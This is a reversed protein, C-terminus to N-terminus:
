RVAQQYTRPPGVVVHDGVRVPEPGRSLRQDGLDPPRATRLRQGQRQSRHGPGFSEPQVVPRSDPQEVFGAPDCTPVTEAPRQRLQQHAAGGDAQFEPPDRRCLAIQAGGAREDGARAQGFEIEV